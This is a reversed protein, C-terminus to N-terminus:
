FIVDKVCLKPKLGKSLPFFHSPKPYIARHVNCRTLQESDRVSKIWFIENIEVKYELIETPRQLFKYM